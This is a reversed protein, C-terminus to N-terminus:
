KKPCDGLMTILFTILDYCFKIFLSIPKVKTREDLRYDVFSAWHDRDIGEPAMAILEDRTRTGDDRQQWLEQRCNRWKHNLAKLIYNIQIDSNVVFKAKFNRAIS